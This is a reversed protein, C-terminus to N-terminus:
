AMVDKLEDKLENEKDKLEKEASDRERALQKIKLDKSGRPPDVQHDKQKAEFKLTERNYRGLVRDVYKKIKNVKGDIVIDETGDEVMRMVQTTNCRTLKCGAPVICNVLNCEIFERPTDDGPFIRTNPQPQTFNCNGYREVIAPQGKIAPTLQGSFNKATIM